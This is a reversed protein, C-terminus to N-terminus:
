HLVKHAKYSAMQQTMMALNSDHLVGFVKQM